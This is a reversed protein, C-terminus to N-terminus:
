QNTPLKNVKVEALRLVQDEFLFGKRLEEIVIGNELKADHAIEVASMTRPELFKGMCEIPYVYNRQLLQEFRNLTMSQGEKFSTIFEVDQKRSHGFVSSVPNYKQLVAFGATLRDYIDIMDLLTTRLVEVRQQQLQESHKALEEVLAKNDTQITILSEGLTDLTTKYHRSQTKVETNLATMEKLLSNLDPQEDSVIQAIDVQELYTQFEELLRNKQLESM